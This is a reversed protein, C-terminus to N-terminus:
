PSVTQVELLHNLTLVGAAKNAGSGIGAKELNLSRVQNAAVCVCRGEGLDLHESGM